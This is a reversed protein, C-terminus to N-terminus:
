QELQVFQKLSKRMFYKDWVFQQEVWFYNRFIIGAVQFAVMVISAKLITNLFVEMDRVEISHVIEKLFYALFLTFCITISTTSFRLFTVFPYVRYPESLRKTKQWFNM